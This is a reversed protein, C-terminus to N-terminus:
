TRIGLASIEKLLEIGVKEQLGLMKKRFRHVKFCLRLSTRTNWAMISYFYRYKPALLFGLLWSALICLQLPNLLYYQGDTSLQAKFKSM